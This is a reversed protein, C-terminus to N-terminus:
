RLAPNLARPPPDDRHFPRPRALARRARRQHPFGNALYLQMSAGLGDTTELYVEPWGQAAAHDMAAAFL